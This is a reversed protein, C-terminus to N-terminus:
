FFMILYRKGMNINFFIHKIKVAQVITIIFNFVYRM